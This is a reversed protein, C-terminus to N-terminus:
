FKFFPVGNTYCAMTAKATMHISHPM